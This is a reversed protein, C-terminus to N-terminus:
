RRAMSNMVSELTCVGWLQIERRSLLRKLLPAMGFPYRAWEGSSDHRRALIETVRAAEGSYEPHRSLLRTKAHGTLNHTYALLPDLSSEPKSMPHEPSPHDPIASWLHENDEYIRVQKRLCGVVHFYACLAM